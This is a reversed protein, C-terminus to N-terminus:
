SGRHRLCCFAEARRELRGLRDGVQTITDSMKALAKLVSQEMGEANKEEGQKSTSIEVVNKTPQEPEPAPEETKKGLEKQTEELTKRMAEIEQLQKLVEENSMVTGKGEPDVKRFKGSATREVTMASFTGQSGQSDSPPTSMEEQQSRLTM